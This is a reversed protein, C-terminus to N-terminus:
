ESVVLRNPPLHTALLRNRAELCQADSRSLIVFCAHSVYAFSCLGKARFYSLKDTIAKRETGRPVSQDFVLLLRRPNQECLTILEPGFVYKTGDVGSSPQLRIGTDPDLFVHQHHTLALFHKTRDASASMADASAITVGLFGEFAGVDAATVPHTFMPHAVWKADPAIARILFRKVVDYSDGFFQMRM